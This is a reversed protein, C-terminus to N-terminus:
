IQTLQKIYKNFADRQEKRAKALFTQKEIERFPSVFEKTGLEKPLEEEIKIDEEM